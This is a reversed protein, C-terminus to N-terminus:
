LTGRELILATKESSNGISTYNLVAIKLKRKKM